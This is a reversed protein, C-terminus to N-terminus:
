SVAFWKILFFPLHLRHQRVSICCLTHPAITGILLASRVVDNLNLLETRSSPPAALEAIQRTILQLRRTQQLADIRAWTLDRMRQILENNGQPGDYDAAVSDFADATDASGSCFLNLMCLVEPADISGGSDIDVYEFATGDGERTPAAACGAEFDAVLGCINTFSWHGADAVEVITVPPNANTFNQRLITNGIPGISHDETALFFLLPVHIQALSVAPLLPNEMPVAIALGAKPRADNMLVLGATVGGFSHGVVTVRDIGLIALLDRMGNAYAAVSYDARPKDSQGHGLLDPAIM